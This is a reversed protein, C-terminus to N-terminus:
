AAASRLGEIRELWHELSVIAQLSALAEASVRAAELRNRLFAGDVYGREVVILRDVRALLPAIQAQVHRAAYPAAYSKSFRRAIREPLLPAMAARMLARPAGPACLVEAPISALYDVLRRDALPYSVVLGTAEPPSALERNLSYLALAAAFHRSVGAGAEARVWRVQTAVIDRFLARGAAPVPWSAADEAGARPRSGIGLIDRCMADVEFRIPLLTILAEHLLEWATRGSAKGWRRLDGFLRRPALARLDAAISTVDVPFNGMVGDGLRGSLLVRADHARVAAYLALRSTDIHRLHVPNPFQRAAQHDLEVHHFPLVTHAEVTEIFRTEDAEPHQPSVYSGTRLSPAVADGQAALRAAMCVVSSSDWGGSLEM